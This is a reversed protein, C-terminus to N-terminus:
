SRNTAAQPPSLFPVEQVSGVAGRARGERPADEDRPALEPDLHFGSYPWAVLCRRARSIYRPPCLPTKVGYFVRAVANFNESDHYHLM